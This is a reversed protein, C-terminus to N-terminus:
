SYMQGARPEVYATPQEQMKAVVAGATGRLLLMEVVKSRRARSPASLGRRGAVGAEHGVRVRSALKGRGRSANDRANLTPLEHTAHEPAQSPTEREREGESLKRKGCTRHRGRGGNRGDFEVVASQM